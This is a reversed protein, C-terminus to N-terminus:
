TLRLLISTPTTKAMENKLMEWDTKIRLITKFANISSETYSAASEEANQKERQEIFSFCFVNKLFKFM